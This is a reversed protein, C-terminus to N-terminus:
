KISMEWMWLKPDEYEKIIEVSVGIMELSKKLDELELDTPQWCNFERAWETQIHGQRYTIRPNSENRVLKEFFGVINQLYLAVVKSGRKKEKKEEWEKKITNVRQKLDWILTTANM